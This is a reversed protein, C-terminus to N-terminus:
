RRPPAGLELPTERRALEYGVEPRGCSCGVAPPTIRPRPRRQDREVDVEAAGSPDRALDCRDHALAAATEGAHPRESEIQRAGAKHLHRHVDLVPLRRRQVVDDVRMAASASARPASTTPESSTPSIGAPAAAAAAPAASRISPNSAERTRSSRQEGRTATAVVHVGISRLVPM